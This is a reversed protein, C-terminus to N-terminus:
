PALSSNESFVSLILFDMPNRSCHALQVSILAMIYRDLVPLGGVGFQNQRQLLTLYSSRMEVSVAYWRIARCPVALLFAAAVLTLDFGVATYVLDSRTALASPARFSSAVCSNREGIRAVIM